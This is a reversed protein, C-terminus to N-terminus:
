TLLVHFLFLQCLIPVVRQVEGHLLLLVLDVLDHDLDDLPELLEVAVFLCALLLLVEALGVLGDLGLHLGVCEFLGLGTAFM